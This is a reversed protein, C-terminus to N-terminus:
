KKSQTIVEYRHKNWYMPRKYGQKLNELFKIDDNISLTVIPVFFNDSFIMLNTWTIKDHYQIM